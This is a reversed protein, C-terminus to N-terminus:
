AVQMPMGTLELSSLYIEVALAITDDFTCLLILVSQLVGTLLIVICFTSIDEFLTVLAWITPLTFLTINLIHDFIHVGKGEGLLTLLFCSYILLLVIFVEYNKYSRYAFSKRVCVNVGPKIFRKCLALSNSFLFNKSFAVSGPNGL